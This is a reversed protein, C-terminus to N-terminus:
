DNKNGVHKKGFVVHLGETSIQPNSVFHYRLIDEPTVGRGAAAKRKTTRPSPATMTTM